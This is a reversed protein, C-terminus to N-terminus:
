AQKRWKSNGVVRLPKDKEKQGKELDTIGLTECYKLFLSPYVNDFKGKVLPWDPDDM